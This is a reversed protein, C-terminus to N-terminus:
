RWPWFHKAKSANELCELLALGDPAGLGCCGNWGANAEFWAADTDGIRNDGEEISVFADEFGPGYILHNLWGARRGLSEGLCAILGAWLPTSASTGGYIFDHGGMYLRYGVDAFAAVDPVGRGRFDPAKGDRLWVNGEVEAHSPVNAAAQFEPAELYGSIGGGTGEVGFPTTVKWAVERSNDGSVRISTGGCALVHPSSAPYNVKAFTPPGGPPGNLSGYDGSSCCVPVHMQQAKKLAYELHRIGDKWLEESAGWSVSIVDAPGGAGHKGQLAAYVAHYWGQVDNPAFYIDIEAGNAVAGAVEIDTTVEMTARCHRFGEAGLYSFDTEGDKLKGIAEHLTDMSIPNCTAGNVSCVNISPVDIGLTKEFYHEIDSEHFGADGFALIAIRQGSGTAAPFRYRQRLDLPTVVPEVHFGKTAKPASVSVNDLGIVADVIDSLSEPVSPAETHSRYSEGEHEVEHLEVGFAANMAAVTGQLLMDHRFTSEDVVTLGHEEAFRRVADFHEEEPSHVGEVDAHSLRPRESPALNISALHKERLAEDADGVPKMLVTVTVVQQVDSPVLKANKPPAHHAHAMLVRKSPTDALVGGPLHGAIAAHYHSPRRMAFATSM